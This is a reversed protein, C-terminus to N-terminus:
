TSQRSACSCHGQVTIAGSRENELPYGERKNERHLYYVLGLFFAIFLYLVVQALDIYSTFTTDM